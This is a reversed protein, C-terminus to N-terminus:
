SDQARDQQAVRVVMEMRPPAQAAILSNEKLNKQEGDDTAISALSLLITEQLLNRERGVYPM